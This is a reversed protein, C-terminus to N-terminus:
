TLNSPHRHSIPQRHRRQVIFELVDNWSFCPTYAFKRTVLKRFTPFLAAHATKAPFVHFKLCQGLSDLCDSAHCLGAIFHRIKVHLYLQNCCSFNPEGPFSITHIQLFSQLSIDSTPYVCFTWPCSQLINSSYRVPPTCMAHHVSWSNLLTKFIASLFYCAKTHRRYRFADSSLTIHWFLQLGLRSLFRKHLFGVEICSAWAMHVWRVIHRSPLQGHQCFIDRPYKLLNPTTSICTPTSVLPSYSSFSRCLNITRIM